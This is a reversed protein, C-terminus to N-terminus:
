ASASLKRLNERMWRHAPHYQFREHWIMAIRFGPFDLPAECLRIPMIRQWAQIYRRPATKSFRAGTNV